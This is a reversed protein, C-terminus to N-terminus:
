ASREIMHSIASATDATYEYPYEPWGRDDLEEPSLARFAGPPPGYKERHPERTRSRGATWVVFLVVLLCALLLGVLWSRAM